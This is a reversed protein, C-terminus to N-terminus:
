PRRSENMLTLKFNTPQKPWREGYTFFELTQIRGSELFLVGGFGNTLGDMIGVLNSITYRGKQDIAMEEPVQLEVFVGVGSFDRSKVM